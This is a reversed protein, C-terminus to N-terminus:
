KSVVIGFAHPAYLMVALMLVQVLVAGALFWRMSPMEAKQGQNEKYTMYSLGALIGAFSLFLIFLFETLHDFQIMVSLMAGMTGAMLGGMIGEMVGMVGCCTGWYAGIAMGALMGALSGVFMGNTAGILAGALFGGSMGVTMGVMMGNMHTFYDRYAQVQWLVATMMGIGAASLFAYVAIKSLQLVNTFHLLVTVAAVAVFSYLLMEVGKAEVAFGESGSISGKVFQM